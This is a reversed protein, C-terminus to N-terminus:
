IRATKKSPRKLKRPTVDVKMKVAAMEIIRKNVYLDLREDAYLSILYDGFEERTIPVNGYVYAVVRKATDAVPVAGSAPVVAAPAPQQAALPTTDSSHGICFGTILLGAEGLLTGWCRATQKIKATM